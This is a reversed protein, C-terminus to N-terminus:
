KGALNRSNSNKEETKILGYLGRGMDDILAPLVMQLRYIIGM